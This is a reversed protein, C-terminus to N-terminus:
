IELVWVELLSPLNKATVTFSSSKLYKVREFNKLFHEVPNLSFSLFRTKYHM